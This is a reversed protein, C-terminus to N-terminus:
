RRLRYRRHVSQSGVNGFILGRKFLSALNANASARTDAFDVAFFDPKVVALKSTDAGVVVASFNSEIVAPFAETIAAYDDFASVKEVGHAVFNNGGLLFFNEAFEVISILHGIGRKVGIRIIKLDTDERFESVASFTAEVRGGVVEFACEFKDLQEFREIQRKSSKDLAVCNASFLIVAMVAVTGFDNARGFDIIRGGFFRVARERDFVRNFREVM